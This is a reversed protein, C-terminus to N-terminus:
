NEFSNKFIYDLNAEDYGIDLTGIDNNVSPEDYPRLQGDLDTALVTPYLTEDCRDIAITDVVSLRYDDNAANNFNLTDIFVQQYIEFNDENTTIENFVVCNVVSDPIFNDPNPDFKIATVEDSVISGVLSFTGLLESGTYTFPSIVADQVNNDAFTSYNISINIDGFNNHIAYSDAYIDHDIGGNKHVLSTNIQLQSNDDRLAAVSGQLVARSGTIETKNIVSRGGSTIYLAGGMFDALNNAILHCLDNWLCGDSPQFILEGESRVYLGGGYFGNAHNNTISSNILEVKSKVAGTGGNIYIGGGDYARNSSINFPTLLSGVLTVQSGGGAYLGGGANNNLSENNHIGLPNSESPTDTGGAFTMNCNQLYIGGGSFDAQNFSFGSLGDVQIDTLGNSICRMGGGFRSNNHTAIVDTINLNLTSTINSNFIGIGGFSTDPNHHIHMNKLNVIGSVGSLYVGTGDDNDFGDDSVRTIEFGDITTDIVNGFSEISIASQTLNEGSILTKETSQMGNEADACSNYAGKIVASRNLVTFSETYPSTNSVRIEDHGDNLAEQIQSAFLNVDYDCDSTWGVTVFSHAKNTLLISFLITVIIYTNKM